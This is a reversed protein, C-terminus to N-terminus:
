AEAQQAATVPAAIVQQPTSTTACGSVSLIAAFIATTRYWNFVPTM